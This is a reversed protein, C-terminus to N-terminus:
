LVGFYLSWPWVKMAGTMHVVQKMMKRNVNQIIFYFQVFSRDVVFGIFPLMSCKSGCEHHLHKATVMCHFFISTIAVGGNKNTFCPNPQIIFSINEIV